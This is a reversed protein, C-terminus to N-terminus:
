KAGPCPEDTVKGSTHLCSGFRLDLVDNSSFSAQFGDSDDVGVFVIDVSQLTDFDVERWTGDLGEPTVDGGIPVGAELEAVGTLEAIPVSSSGPESSDAVAYIKKVRFSECVTVILQSEHRSVAAPGVGIRDCGALTVSLCMTLGIAAIARAAPV